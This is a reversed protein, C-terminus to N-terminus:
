AVPEQELLAKGDREQAPLEINLRRITQCKVSWDCRDSTDNALGIYLRIGSLADRRKCQRVACRIHFGRPERKALANLIRGTRQWSIFPLERRVTTRYDYPRSKPNSYVFGSVASGSRWHRPEPQGRNTIERREELVLVLRDSAHYSRVVSGNAVSVRLAAAEQSFEDSSSEVNVFATSLDEVRSILWQAPVLTLYPLIAFGVVVWAVVWAALLFGAYSADQFLGQGTTALVLGVLGGLAAGLLRIYRIM